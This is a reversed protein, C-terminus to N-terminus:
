ASRLSKEIASAWDYNNKLRTMHLKYGPLPENCSMEFIINKNFLTEKRTKWEECSQLAENVLYIKDQESITSKLHLIYKKLADHNYEYCKYLDCVEPSDPYKNWWILKKIKEITM